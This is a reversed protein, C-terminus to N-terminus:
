GATRGLAKTQTTEAEPPRNRYRERAWLRMMNWGWWFVAVFVTLTLIVAVIQIKHGQVVPNMIPALRARFRSSNVAIYAAIMSSATLLFSFMFMMLYELPPDSEDAKFRSLFRRHKPQGFALSRRELQDDIKLLSGASVLTRQLWILMFMAYTFASIPIVATRINDTHSWQFIRDFAFLIAAMSLLLFALFILIERSLLRQMALLDESSALGFEPELEEALDPERYAEIVQTSIASDKSSDSGSPNFKTSHSGTNEPM